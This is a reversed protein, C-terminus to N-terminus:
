FPLAEITVRVWNLRGAIFLALKQEVTGAFKFQVPEFAPQYFGSHPAAGPSWRPPVPPSVMAPGGVGPVPVARPMNQQYWADQPVRPDRLIPAGGMSSLNHQIWDPYLDLSLNAGEISKLHARVIESERDTLTPAVISVAEVSSSAAMWAPVLFKSAALFLTERDTIWWRGVDYGTLNDYGEYDCEVILGHILEVTPVAERFAALGMKSKYIPVTNDFTLKDNM